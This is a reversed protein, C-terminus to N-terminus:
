AGKDDEEGTIMERIEQLAEIVDDVRFHSYRFYEIKKDIMRIIEKTPTM